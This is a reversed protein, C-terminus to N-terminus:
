EAGPEDPRLRSFSSSPWCKGARIFYIYRETIGWDTALKKLSVGRPQTARIFLVQEETLRCNPNTEGSQSGSALTGTIRQDNNNEKPTGLRLHKDASCRKSPCEISHLVWLKSDTIDGHRSQWLLRHVYKPKGRFSVVGYGRSLHGTWLLCDGVQILNKNIRDEEQKTLKPM